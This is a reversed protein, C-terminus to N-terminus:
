GELHGAKTGAVTSYAKRCSGSTRMGMKLRSSQSEIFVLCSTPGAPSLCLDAQSWTWVGAGRALPPARM